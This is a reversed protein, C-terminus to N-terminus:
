KKLPSEGIKKKAFEPITEGRLIGLISTDYIAGVGFEAFNRAGSFIGVGVDKLTWWVPNKQFGIYNQVKEEDLIGMEYLRKVNKAKMHRYGNQEMDKYAVYQEAQNDDIFGNSYLEKVEAPAYDVLRKPQTDEDVEPDAYVQTVEANETDFDSM